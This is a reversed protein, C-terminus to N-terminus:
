AVTQFMQKLKMWKKLGDSELRLIIVSLIKELTKLGPM